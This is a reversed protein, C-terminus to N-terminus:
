DLAQIPSFASGGVLRPSEEQSIAKLQAMPKKGAKLSSQFMPKRHTELWGAKQTVQISPERPSALWWRWPPQEECLGRRRRHVDWQNQASPPLFRGSGPSLPGPAVPLTSVRCACLAVARAQIAGARLFTLSAWCGCPPWPPDATHWMSRNLLGPPKHIGYSFGM